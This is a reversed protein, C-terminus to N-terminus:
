DDSKEEKSYLENLMYDSILRGKGRYNLKPEPDLAYEDVVEETIYFVCESYHKHDNSCVWEHAEAKCRTSFVGELESVGHLDHSELIYVIM